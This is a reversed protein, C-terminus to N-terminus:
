DSEGGGFSRSKLILSIDGCSVGLGISLVEGRTSPTSSVCGRKWGAGGSIRVSVALDSIRGTNLDLLLARGLDAKVLRGETPVPLSGLRGLEEMRICLFCGKVGSGVGWIADRSARSASTISGTSRVGSTAGMDRSVSHTGLGM